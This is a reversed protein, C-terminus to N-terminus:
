QGKKWRGRSDRNQSPWEKNRVSDGDADDSEEEALDDAQSLDIGAREVVAAADLAVAEKASVPKSFFYGQIVDCGLRRCILYQDATEVGEVVIRKGLGHVLKTIHEIFGEKGAVMFTDVLSKDLKVDDVPTSALRYLSSYGTGFDDLALKIGMAKLRRFLAEAREENELIMSETIEVKIRDAPVKNTALLGALYDCYGKDRLQAASFNVSAVGVQRGQAIWAGLQEVVKKTMIRDLPSILGSMEAVPIFESPYYKNSELRCLAEYGEVELTRTNVQPQLLVVFSEDEIAQKLYSTIEIKRDMAERMSDDYFVAKHEGRAKAEHVALDSYVIMDEATMGEERNAVGGRASIDVKNDGFAVPEGLLGWIQRVQTGGPELPHDFALTFEDGGSRALLACDVGELRQAVIKIVENGFSHGYSDNIDTFDDIDVQLISALRGQNEQEGAFKELAQRNPLETLPDHYFRYQLDRHSKYIDRKAKVSSRYGIVGFGAVCLGALVFLVIPKVLPRLTRASIAGDNVLSASPDTADPSIGAKELAQVDYVMTSPEAHAVAISGPQAGNLEKVATEAALEGEAKRDVFAGGCAGEGVGGTATFVPCSTSSSVLHATQSPTYSTGDADHNAALVLVLTEDSLGSLQSALQDRSMTSVDWVERELGPAAAPDDDLQALLGKSEESGDVLVVVKSCGPVLAAASSLSKSAAGREVVGTALGAAQASSAHAQDQVALFTVPVGALLDQHGEVYTLAEDGAAIVVDYGGATAAKAVIQSTVAEEGVSGAPNSRADLYFVDYSVSSRRLVDLVGAREYGTAADSEDYAMIVLAHRTPEGQASEMTAYQSTAQVSSVTNISMLGLIAFVCAVAFLGIRLVLTGSAAGRQTRRGQPAPSAGGTTDGTSVQPSAESAQPSAERPARSPGGESRRSTTM